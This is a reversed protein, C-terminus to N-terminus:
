HRPFRLALISILFSCPVERFAVLRVTMPRRRSFFSWTGERRKLWSVLKVRATLTTSTSVMSTTTVVRVLRNNALNYLDNVHRFSSELKDLCARIESQMGRLGYVLDTVTSPSFNYKLVAKVYALPRENSPLTISLLNTTEEKARDTLRELIAFTEDLTTCLKWVAVKGYESRKLSYWGM